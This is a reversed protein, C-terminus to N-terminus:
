NLWMLFCNDPTNANEVRKFNAIDTGLEQALLKLFNETDPHHSQIQINGENRYYFVLNALERSYDEAVGLLGYGSSSSLLDYSVGVWVGEGSSLYLAPVSFAEGPFTRRNGAKDIATFSYAYKEGPILPDGSDGRGDWAITKPPDGEGSISHFRNGDSALIDLKWSALDEFNVHFIKAPNTIINTLEPTSTKCDFLALSPNIGEKNWSVSSWNIRERVEVLNTFDSKLVIPLKEEEGSAEWTEKVVVDDISKKGEEQQSQAVVNLTFVSLLLLVNGYKM